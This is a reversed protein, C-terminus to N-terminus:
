VPTAASRCRRSHAARFLILFYQQRRQPPQADRPTSACRAIAPSPGNRSWSSFRAASRATASRTCKMPCTSSTRGTSAASSMKRSGDTATSDNEFAASSAIAIPRGPSGRLCRRRARFSGPRRRLSRRRASRARPAVAPTPRPATRRVPALARQHSDRRATAGHRTKRHSGHDRCIAPQQVASFSSHARLRSRHALLELRIGARSAGNGGSPRTLTKCNPGLRLTRPPMVDTSRRM